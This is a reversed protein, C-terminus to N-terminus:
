GEVLEAVRERTAVTLHGAAVRHGGLSPELDEDATGVAAHAMEARGEGVALEVIDADREEHWGALDVGARMPADLPALATREVGRAWFLVVGRTRARGLRLVHLELVHVESLELGRRESVDSERRRVHVV